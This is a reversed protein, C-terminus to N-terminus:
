FLERCKRGCNGIGGKGACVKQELRTSRIGSTNEDDIKLVTLTSKERAPTQTLNGCSGTFINIADM